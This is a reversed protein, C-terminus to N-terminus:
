LSMSFSDDRYRKWDKDKNIKNEGIKSNIFVAGHIDTVRASEPGGISAREIQMFNRGMLNCINSTITLALIFLICRTEPFIQSRFDLFQGVVKLCM